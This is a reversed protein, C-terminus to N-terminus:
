LRKFSAGSEDLRENNHDQHEHKVSNKNINGPVWASKKDKTSDSKIDRHKGIVDMLRPARTIQNEPGMRFIKKYNNEISIKRSNIDHVMESLVVEVDKLEVLEERAMEIRKDHNEVSSKLVGFITGIVSLGKLAVSGVVAAVSLTIGVPPFFAMVVVAAIAALVTVVEFITGGIKLIKDLRARREERVRIDKELADRKEKINKLEEGIEQNINEVIGHRDDLNQVKNVLSDLREILQSKKFYVEQKLLRLKEDLYSSVSNEVLANVADLGVGINNGSFPFNAPMGGAVSNSKAATRSFSNELWRSARAIQAGSGPYLLAADIGLAALLWGEM